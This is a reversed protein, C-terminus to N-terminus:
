KGICFRGFINDLVEENTKSGIIEDLAHRAWSLDTAVTELTFDNLINKRANELFEAARTLAMKHRLNPIISTPSVEIGQSLVKNSISKRLNNFGEGTLASVSVWPLQPFASAIKKETVKVPLDIKNVVVITPRTGVEDLLETDHQNLPRSGDVVLLVVDALALQTKTLDVGKREVTGKIKRIGATDILRLPLGEITITYELIDRTTGPIPTVLAREEQSLRNFISSKGANVRGVIVVAIGEHWIRRQSHAAIFEKIPELAKKAIQEALKLRSVTVLDEDPFDISAEIVALISIIEQRIEETRAGLGGTLQSAALRLSTDTKANMLDIIAEAQTLDIRGNLFARLTFEGPKALRAGAELVIQLINSLIAYGSHSNIEVVDERTYSSPAHMVSLLVEDLPLNSKPDVIHGLCLHFGDFSEIPRKSRFIKRAIDKAHTGSIKIIGIGGIGVPTAIAAITEERYDM